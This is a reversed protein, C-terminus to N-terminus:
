VTMLYSQGKNSLVRRLVQPVKISDNSLVHRLVQPVKISDNSLVRRLM